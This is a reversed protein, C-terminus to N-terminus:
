MVFHDTDKNKAGEEYHMRDIILFADEKLDVVKINQLSLFVSFVEKGIIIIKKNLAIAIGIEVWAGKYFIDPTPMYAVLVDCSRVGELDEEAYTKHGNQAWDENKSWDYKKTFLGKDHANTIKEPAIHKTWDCTITHGRSEFMEMISKIKDRESWKGAVYIKM